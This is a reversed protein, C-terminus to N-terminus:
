RFWHQGLESVCIHPVPPSSNVNYIYWWCCTGTYRAPLFKHRIVMHLRMQCGLSVDFCSLFVWILYQHYSYHLAPYNVTPFPQCKENCLLGLSFMLEVTQLFEKVKWLWFWYAELRLRSIHTYFKLKLSWLYWASLLGYPISSLLVLRVSLYVCVGLSSYRSIGYFRYYLNCWIGFSLHKEDRRATAKTWDM